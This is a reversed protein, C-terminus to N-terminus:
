NGLLQLAAPPVLVGDIVHIVGNSADIDTAVINVGNLQVTEPNVNIPESEMPFIESESLIEGAFLEENVLHYLLVTTLLEKDAFLEDKTLGTASLLAVFADNTPAFVTLDTGTVSLIGVLGTEVVAEVLISFDPNSAAIEAITQEPDTISPPLLVRDIVHIVGNSGPIDLGILQSDNVRPGDPDVTIFEGELTLLEHQSVVAPSFLANGVVHYTLVKTLLAKDAFLEDKSIGLESLLNVFAQNTPAFVTFPGPGSLVDVLDAAVVAEVLISFDDNGAAIAVVSPETPLVNLTGEITRKSAYRLTVEARITNEGENFVRDTELLRAAKTRRVTGGLDYPPAYERKFYHGNVYFTVFRVKHAEYRSLTTDLFVAVEGVAPTGTGNLSIANTREANTSIALNFTGTEDDSFSVSPVILSLAILLSFITKKLSTNIRDTGILSTGHTRNM